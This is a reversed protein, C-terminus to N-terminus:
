NYELRPAELLANDGHFGALVLSFTWMIVNHVCACVCVLMHVCGRMCACVLMHVCVHMCACVCLCLCMYVRVLTHVCWHMCTHVCACWCVCGDIEWLPALTLEGQIEPWASGDLSPSKLATCKGAMCVLLMTLTICLM